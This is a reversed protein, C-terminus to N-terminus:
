PKALREQATQTGNLTVNDGEVIVQSDFYKVACYVVEIGICDTPASHGFYSVQSNTFTMSGNIPRSIDVYFWYETDKSKKKMPLSFSSLVLATVVALSGLLYKRM